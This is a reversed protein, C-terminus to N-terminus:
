FNDSYDDCGLFGWFCWFIVLFEGRGHIWISQLAGFGIFFSLDRSIVYPHGDFCLFNSLLFSRKAGSFDTCQGLNIYIYIQEGM